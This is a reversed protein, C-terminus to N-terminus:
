RWESLKENKMVDGYIIRHSFLLATRNQHSGAVEFRFM